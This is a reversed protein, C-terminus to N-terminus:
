KSKAKFEAELRQAHESMEKWQDADRGKAGAPWNAVIEDGIAYLEDLSEADALRQMAEQYDEDLLKVQTKNAIDHYHRYRGTSIYDNGAQLYENYLEDIDIDRLKYSKDRGTYVVEENGSAYGRSVKVSGKMYFQMNPEFSVAIQCNCYPHYSDFKSGHLNSGGASEETHYVFGRSGLMRCFECAKGDPIRAYRAHKDKNVNNTLTDRGAQKVYEDAKGALYAATASPNHKM